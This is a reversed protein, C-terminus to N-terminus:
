EQESEAQLDLEVRRSDRERHRAQVKEKYKRLQQELKHVAADVAVMLEEARESAVFDHKHEASVQLDVKPRHEEKLDVIVEIATLREFIRLLKEAKAAIKEQSAESLHGHRTSLSVQM